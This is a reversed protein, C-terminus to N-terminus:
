EEYKLLFKPNIVKFSLRGGVFRHDPIIINEYPRIVIGERQVSNNIVSKEISLEVLKDVDDTLKICGVSPVTPINLSRCINRMEAPPVYSGDKNIVNFVYIRYNDLKYKNGHIKPGIIEGQFVTYFPVFKMSDYFKKATVYIIDKENLIEKNRNCVHLKRKKDVWFTVSSGDLKETIDCVTGKYQYLVDQLVQVRSEVSKHIWNPFKARLPKYIFKRWFWRGIRFRMYWKNNKPEETEFLYDDEPEWKKAGLFETVDDGEGFPKDYGELICLPFAIGQSIQGRLKKTRIRKGELFAFYKNDAPFITDIEGYVCLDGEKFEGKKVVVHWGLIDAVEINDANEISRVAKVRQITVLQRM